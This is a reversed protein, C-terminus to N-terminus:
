HQVVLKRVQTHDGQRVQLLYTGAPWKDTQLRIAHSGADRVQDDVVAVRRMALDYVAIHSHKAEPMDLQLTVYADAPHPYLEAPIVMAEFSAGPAVLFGATLLISEEAHYRIVAGAVLSQSSHITRGQKLAQAQTPGDLRLMARSGQAHASAAMMWGLLLLALVRCAPQPFFPSRKM